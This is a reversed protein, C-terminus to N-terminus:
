RVIMFKCAQSETGDESACFVLYVGSAAKKGDVNRGNWSFQGGLSKGRILTNGNLDTIRVQSSEMLGTVTIYGEYGPKVPNPFVHVSSYDSKGENADSRFSVLGSETGVFVEGTEPHIAITKIVDSPLSSNDMDFHQITKLGDASLLYLGQGQTGLWKRNAGDVTICNIRVNNLLYDAADTGDNRPIKVRTFTFDQSFVTSADTVLLPGLNTGIWITGNKDEAMCLINWPLITLGDQDTYTQFFRTKDDSVTELTEKTDLVFIGSVVRASNMWVQGKSTFLISNWNTSSKMTSYYQRIWTGDPKLIYLVTDLPNASNLYNSNLVWLNGDTDYTAGDVRCFRGPLVTKLPSNFQNHQKYFCHNRFELLGDGWTTIFYHSEDQPDIAINLLDMPSYGLANMMNARDPLGSWKEGDFVQIESYTGNRDTWSGGATAYFTGDMFFSNWVSGIPPGDPMISDKTLIYTSGNWPLVAIGREDSARYLVNSTKDLSVSKSIGDQVPILSLDEDYVFTKIDACVIMRNGDVTVSKLSNGTLFPVWNGPHGEYLVADSGLVFFTEGFRVVQLPTTTALNGSYKWYSADLLNATRDGVYFGSPSLIMMSDGWILADNCQSSGGGFSLLYSNAFERREIDVELLGAKTSILATKGVIKLGLITKDVTLSKDRFDPLNVMKGSVMFDINGDSYVVILTKVLDCWGIFSVTSGNLGSLKSYTKLTGDNPSYSFLKGNAQAYVENETFVVQNTKNYSFHTRWDGVPPAAISAASIALFAVLLYSFANKM